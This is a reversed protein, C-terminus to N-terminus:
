DVKIPQWKFGGVCQWAFPSGPKPDSNFMIDGRTGSFGPVDTAHGIRFRDIRLQKLTTLLSESDLEIHSSGDIGITLKQKRGTGLYASNKALKGFKVSVEEDWVCLAMDPSDTNIGIRNGKIAFTSGFQVPGNVALSSLTGLSQINTQTIKSNLINGTVLPQGDLTISEFDIGQTKSLDLVQEVLISKWDSNIKLLTSNSVKDVLENWSNNDTNISGKVILNQTTLVNTVTTNDAYFDRASATNNITVLGDSVSLETNIATDEIGNTKFDKILTQHWRNFSQDVETSVISNLDLASLQQVIKSAMAQNTLTEIKKLWVPDVLLTDITQQIMSQVSSDITQKITNAEIYKEIGPIKGQDFITKVGNEITRVIDPIAGINVFRAAIRNQIYNAIKQEFDNLWASDALTADVHQQVSIQVQQEILDSLSKTDSM